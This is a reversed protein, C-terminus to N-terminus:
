IFKEITKTKKSGQQSPKRFNLSNSLQKRAKLQGFIAFVDKFVRLGTSLLENSNVQLKGHYVNLVLKAMVQQPNPFIEELLPNAKECLNLIDEFVNGSRFSGTQLREVFADLCQSYGKFESLIKAIEKMKKKDVCKIFEDILMREIEEYKHSIRMQVAAFKDKDLEQSISALKQIM